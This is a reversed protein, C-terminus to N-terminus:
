HLWPLRPTCPTSPTGVGPQNQPPSPSESGMPLGARLQPCGQCANGQQTDQHLGLETRAGREGPRTAPPHWPHSLGRRQSSVHPQCHHCDGRRYSRSCSCYSPTATMFINSLALTLTLRSM